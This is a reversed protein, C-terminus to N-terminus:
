AETRGPIAHKPGQAFGVGAKLGGIGGPISAESRCAIILNSPDELQTAHPALNPTPCLDLRVQPVHVLALAPGQGVVGIGLVLLPALPLHLAVGFRALPNQFVAKLLSPLPTIGIKPFTKLYTHLGSRRSPCPTPREVLEAPYCLVPSIRLDEPVSRQRRGLQM